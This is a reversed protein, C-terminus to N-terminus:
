LRVRNAEAVLERVRAPDPPNHWDGRVKYWSGIIVADAYGFLERLTDPTAGSGVALPLKTATRVRRIDEISAPRATAAGTVIVGDAGFFEANRAAEAVDVDSTIAHANHKKKVDVIVRVKEAGIHRRYRLLPGADAEDMLGEDAVAAFVFGEARVFQLGVSHAIAVAARNAGALVQVGLPVDVAERVADAVVTMASIIEPGVERRLYPVDHMNELILADFGAEALMWAEEVARGAIVNVPDSHRPTGPLAGVHIMGVLAKPAGFIDMSLPM